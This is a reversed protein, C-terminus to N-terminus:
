TADGGRPAAAEHAEAAVVVALSLMEDLMSEVDDRADTETVESFSKSLNSALEEATVPDKLQSWIFSATSNLVFFKNRAPSFLICERELPAEEIETSRQFRRPM